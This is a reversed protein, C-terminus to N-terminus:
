QKQDTRATEARTEFFRRVDIEGVERGEQAFPRLFNKLDDRSFLQIQIDGSGHNGAYRMTNFARIGDLARDRPLRDLARLGLEELSLEPNSNNAKGAVM